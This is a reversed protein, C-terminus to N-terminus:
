PLVIKKRGNEVVMRPQVPEIVAGRRAEIAESSSSASILAELNKITPFVMPMEGKKMRALADAPSTWIVGRIPPACRPSSPM